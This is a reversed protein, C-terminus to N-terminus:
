RTMGLFVDELSARAPTLEYLPIGELAALDAIREAELGTVTLRDDGAPEVRAGADALVTMLPGARHTRVAVRSNEATALLEGVPADAILKGNRIVILHDATGELERMLHSSVLVTRGEAALGRLFGRIWRIGEPDLGNVPEDLMLVDHAVLGDLGM